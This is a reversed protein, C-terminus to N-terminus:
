QRGTQLRTEFYPRFDNTLKQIYKPKVNEIQAENPKQESFIEVRVTGCRENIADAAYTYMGYYTADKLNILYGQENFLKAIKSRQIPEVENEGCFLKMSYFDAKFKFKGGSPVIGTLGGVLARTWFSGATEGIEPIAQIHLVPRYEGAYEGWGYMDQFPNFTGKIESKQERGKRGKLAERELETAMRYKLSPTILTVSFKGVEFLYPNMDFKRASAVERIADLPFDGKPEVPLLRASLGIARKEFRLPLRTTYLSARYGGGM